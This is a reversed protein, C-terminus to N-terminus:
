LLFHVRAVAVTRRNSPDNGAQEAHVQVQAVRHGQRQVTCVAYLDAARASRLYDISFDVSKPVRTTETTLLLHLTAANEMFGAIVGGHLAPLTPNGVLDPCFPLLCVMSGAQPTIRVGLWAAYPIHSILGTADHQERWQRRAELLGASM